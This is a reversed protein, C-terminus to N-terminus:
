APRRLRKRLADLLAARKLPKPLVAAVGLERALAGSAEVSPFFNSSLAIVAAGPHRLALARVVESAGRRPRALDVIVLDPAEEVIRCGEEALWEELLGQLASDADVIRIRAVEAEPTM